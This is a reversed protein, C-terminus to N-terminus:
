DSSGVSQSRHALGDDTVRTESLHLEKVHRLRAIEKLGADTVGADFLQDGNLFLSEVQSMRAILRM